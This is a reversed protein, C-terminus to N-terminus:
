SYQYYTTLPLPKNPKFILHIYAFKWEAPVKVQRRNLRLCTALSGFSDNNLNALLETPIGNRRPTTNKRIHSLATRVESILINQDLAHNPSGNHDKQQTIRCSPGYNTQRRQRRFPPDLLYRPSKLGKSTSVHNAMADRLSM